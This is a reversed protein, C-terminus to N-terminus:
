ESESGNREELGKEDGKEAADAPCDVKHPLLWHPNAVVFVTVAIVMLAGDLGIFYRETTILYGTWGQILEVSRYVGRVILATTSVATAAALIRLKTTSTGAIPAQDDINLIGKGGPQYTKALSYAFLCAFVVNSALQFVIGVIMTDTGPTVNGNANGSAASAM